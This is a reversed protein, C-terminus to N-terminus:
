IPLRILLKEIGTETKQRRLKVKESITEQPLFQMM